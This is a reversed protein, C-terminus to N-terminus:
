GDHNRSAAAPMVHGMARNEQWTDRLTRIRILGRFQDLKLRTVPTVRMRWPKDPELCVFNDDCRAGMGDLSVWVWLAPHHSTLTVAFSNDDWNRIEARIRPSLPSMERWARFNVIDWSLQNGQEDLLYIWLLLNQCGTKRLADAVKIACVSEQATMAVAVKRSGELVSLGEMDTARWQVEGKFAKLGDNFVLVDVVGPAERYLGGM